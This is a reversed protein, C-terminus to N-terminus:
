APLKADPPRIYLPEPPLLLGPATHALFAAHRADPLADAVRLGPHAATAAEALTLAAEKLPAFPSLTFAQAYVEGKGANLLALVPDEGGAALAACALTGAGQVPIGTAFGIGRAAALGIRLGTFTGPGVTSVILSLQAYALGAERLTSEILLVLQKAQQQPRDERAFALVERGRTVAVSCPGLAADIALITDTATMPRLISAM